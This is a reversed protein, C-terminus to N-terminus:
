AKKLKEEEKKKKAAEADEDRVKQRGKELIEEQIREVEAQGQVQMEALIDGVQNHPHEALLKAAREIQEATLEIKLKPVDM